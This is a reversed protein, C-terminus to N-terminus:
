KTILKQSAEDALRWAELMQDILNKRTSESKIESYAKELFAYAAKKEEVTGLNWNKLAARVQTASIGGEQMDIVEPELNESLRALLDTYRGEDMEKQGVVLKVKGTLGETHAREVYSWFENPSGFHVKVLDGVSAKLIQRRLETDFIYTYDRATLAKKTDALKLEKWETAQLNPNKDSVLLYIEKGPNRAVTQKIMQLHGSHIPQGKMVIFLAGPNWTAFPSGSEATPAPLVARHNRLNNRLTFDLRDVLKVITDPTQLM